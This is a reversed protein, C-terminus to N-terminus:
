RQMRRLHSEKAVVLAKILKDLDSPYLEALVDAGNGVKLELTYRLYEDTPKPLQVRIENVNLYVRMPM